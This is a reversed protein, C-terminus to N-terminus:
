LTILVIFSLSNTSALKTISLDLVKSSSLNLNGTFMLKRSNLLLKVLIKRTIIIVIELMVFKLYMMM